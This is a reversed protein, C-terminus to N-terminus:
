SCFIIILGNVTFFFSDKMPGIQEGKYQITLYIYKIM